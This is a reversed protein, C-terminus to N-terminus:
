PTVAAALQHTHPTKLATATTIHPHQTLATEIEGLEIRHGNIKIQHDTRGLFELTGDPWYRGLDGTRYWRTHHTHPFKRDTTHPDNHYGLALSHGGIWLEGPVWDPADHGHHNVVRYHQNRLPRGYPISTWHPPITTIHHHNSWIGAETAGGLAILTCHPLHHTLRPHLDLPVWDGSVLALRLTPPLPHDDTTTTLLMDLLAPVTNWITPHHTHALHHWHDPDTRHDHHPLILTGGATLLGFTDYVSLDFDLASLALVRDDATVHCRDNLDTITNMAARHSVAVGKPEGTSGSTFIVYALTDPDQPLPADLPASAACDALPVTAPEGPQEDATEGTLVTRVGARQYIRKRREPPQDVGVPVYAAGAALIGLVAAIQDPGKPLTVAIPEGPTTGRDLLTTAIRLAQDALDHYTTHGDPTLLATRHPTRAAHTFFGDHLLTDPLPGTTDNATARVLRQEPPLLPPLPTNWDHDGLHDLLRTYTTFMADLVGPPFLEEVADWVLLLGGDQEIVQHDLWVQPTQSLMWGLRGFAEQTEQGVLDGMGVASTFVVSPPPAGDTRSRALDRLVEVGTYESHAMDSRLRAQLELARQGFGTESDLDVELPVLNTFDAVLHEVHPDLVSRDFLPVNLLFRPETSWAGLVEAYATALLVPVTVGHRRALEELAARERADLRHDRRVFRPAAISSPEVSVPLQPGGPLDPLRAHWYERARERDASRRDEVRALYTPFGYGLEPLGARDADGGARYIRSLDRFLIQISLVDAVLLDVNVHMRHRDGPLLSLRVDFVVGGDVDLRRHALREREEALHREVEAEGAGRLDHVTLGPWAPDEPVQQTGDDLFRARLMAHRRMLERVSGELLGPDVPTRPDGDFEVYFHCAVGGLVQDDRRGIWYAHQVPTLAFPESEDVASGDASRGAEGGDPRERRDTVLKWWATLVPREAFDAFKLSLSDLQWQNVLQMLRISDLGHYVLDDEDGIASPTVGVSRAVDERMSELTLAPLGGSRPAPAGAPVPRGAADGVNTTGTSSSGSPRAPDVADHRHLLELEGSRYRRLVERRRASANAPEGGAPAALAGARVLGVTEPALGCEAVMTRVAARACTAWDREELGPGAELLLTLGGGHHTRLACVAGVTDTCARVANEARELELVDPRSGHLTETADKGLPLGDPM